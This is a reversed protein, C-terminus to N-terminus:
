RFAETLETFRETDHDRSDAPWDPPAPFFQTVYDQADHDGMLAAYRWCIEAAEEQGLLEFLEAARRACPASHLAHRLHHKIEVRPPMLGTDSPLCSPEDWAMGTDWLPGAEDEATVAHGDTSGVSLAASVRILLADDGGDAVQRRLRAADSRLLEEINM